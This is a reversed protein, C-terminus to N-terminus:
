RSKVSEPLHRPVPGGLPISAESALSERLLLIQVTRSHPPWRCVNIQSLSHQSSRTTWPATPSPAFLGVYLVITAASGSKACAFSSTWATPPRQRSRCFRFGRSAAISCIRRRPGPRASHHRPCDTEPVRVPDEVRAPCGALYPRLLFRVRLTERPAAECKELVRKRHHPNEAPFSVSRVSLSSEV